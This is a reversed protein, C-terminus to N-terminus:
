IYLSVFLPNLPRFAEGAPISLRINLYIKTLIEDIALLPLLAILAVTEIFIATESERRARTFL